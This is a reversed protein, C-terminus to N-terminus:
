VVLRLFEAHRDLVGGQRGVGCGPGLFRQLLFSLPRQGGFLGCGCGHRDPGIPLDAFRSLSSTRWAWWRRAVVDPENRPHQQFFEPSRLVRRGPLFDPSATKYRHLKGFYNKLAEWEASIGCAFDIRGFGLEAAGKFDVFGNEDLHTYTIRGQDFKATAPSMATFAPPATSPTRAPTRGCATWRPM